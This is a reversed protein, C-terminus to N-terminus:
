LFRHTPFHIFQGAAAPPRCDPHLEDPQVRSTRSGSSGPALRIFGPDHDTPAHRNRERRPRVLTIFADLGKEKRVKLEQDVFITGKGPYFNFADVKLQYRSAQEFHIGERNLRDKAARMAPSEDLPLAQDMFTRRPPAFSFADGKRTM